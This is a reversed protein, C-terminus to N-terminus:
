KRNFLHAMNTTLCTKICKFPMCNITLLKAVEFVPMVKNPIDKKIYEPSCSYIHFLLCMDVQQRARKISSRYKPWCINCHVYPYSSCTCTYTKSSNWGKLSQPGTSKHHSLCSEFDCWGFHEFILFCIKVILM